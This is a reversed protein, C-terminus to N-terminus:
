KCKYNQFKRSKKARKKTSKQGNKSFRWIKKSCFSAKCFFKGFNWFDIKESFCCKKTNEIVFRGLGRNSKKEIKRSKQVRFFGSFFKTVLSCIIKLFSFFEM